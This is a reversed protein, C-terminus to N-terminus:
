GNKKRDEYDIIEPTGLLRGMFTSCGYKKRVWEAFLVGLIIGISLLSYFLINSKNYFLAILAFFLVPSLFILLWFIAEIFYTLIKM